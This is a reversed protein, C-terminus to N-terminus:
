AGEGRAKQREIAKLLADRTLVKAVKRRYEASARVDSIPKIDKDVLEAAQHINSENVRKGILFDEASKARVPTPAVANLAIKVDEIKEDITIISVAVSVISLTFADRRGLKMYASTRGSRIPIEIEYLLEDRRLATKRPGLFFEEIPIEREGDLSLLKLKADMVLLPPATDAAPSANCLNGGLTAVNRIQWSAMEGAAESLALAKEKIVFNEYIEQLTTGAGIKISSPSMRIYRIESLRSIDVLRKPRQRGIKMDIILDTGGAIIKADEFEKLIKLADEIKSVRIYEFEPIKYFM